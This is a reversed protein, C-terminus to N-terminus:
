REATGFVHESESSIRVVIVVIDHRKAVGVHRLAKRWHVVVHRGTVSGVVILPFLVEGVLEVGGSSSVGGPRWTFTHCDTM